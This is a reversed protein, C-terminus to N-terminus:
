ALKAAIEKNVPVKSGFVSPQDFKGQAKSKMAGYVRQDIPQGIAM